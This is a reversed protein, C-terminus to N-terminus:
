NVKPIQGPSTLHIGGIQVIDPSLPRSPETIFHTNTFTLSPKVLEVADYALPQIQRHRREERWLLWSGYVIHLTNAFRDPFTKPVGRWFLLNSVAAPNPVHGFFSRESHTVIPSPMVYIVPIQLVNAAYSVCDLWLAETVVVDFVRSKNFFIERMLPNKFIAGCSTRTTNVIYAIMTRTSRKIESMKTGLRSELDDSVNVVTYGDRDGDELPTFVTVNHGRDTLTRLVARVPNWHSRSNITQVALINASEIPPFLLQCIGFTIM